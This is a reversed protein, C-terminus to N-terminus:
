SFKRNMMFAICPGPCKDSTHGYFPCTQCVQLYIKKWYEYRKLLLHGDIKQLTTANTLHRDKTSLPFCHFADLETSIDMSSAKGFCGWGLIRIHKSLYKFEENTFMCRTFGCNLSIIAKPSHTKIIQVLDYLKKGMKPFDNFVYYNKDGATPNSFGVRYGYVNELASPPILNFLFNMNTLPDITLSLTVKTKKSWNSVRDIVTKRIKHNLLFGPTMSNFTIKLRPFYQEIKNAREESFIGNTFIQVDKFSKLSLRLITELEPHLTPEGGLLKITSTTTKKIKGLIKKFGEISINKKQQENQMEKNAFCFSCSQNCYNTILINPSYM